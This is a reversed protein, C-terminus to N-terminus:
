ILIEKNLIFLLKNFLNIFKISYILKFDLSPTLDVRM